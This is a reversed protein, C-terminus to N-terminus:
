EKANETKEGILEVTKGPVAAIDKKLELAKNVVEAKVDSEHSVKAREDAREREEVGGRALAEKETVKVLQDKMSNALLHIEGLKAEQKTAREEQKTGQIVQAAAVAATKQDLQKMKYTLYGAFVMSLASFFGSILAAIAQDSM